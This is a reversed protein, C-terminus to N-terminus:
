FPSSPPPLVLLPFPRLSISLFCFLQHVAALLPSILWLSFWGLILKNCQSFSSQDDKLKAQRSWMKLGRNLSYKQSIYFTTDKGLFHKTKHSLKHHSAPIKRCWHGPVLERRNVSHLLKHVCKVHLFDVSTIQKTVAVFVDYVPHWCLKANVNLASCRSRSSVPLPRTATPSVSASLALFVHLSLPNLYFPFNPNSLPTRDEERERNKGNATDCCPCCHFAEWKM